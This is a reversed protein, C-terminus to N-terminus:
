STLRQNGGFSPNYSTQQCLDVQRSRNRHSTVFYTQADSEICPRGVTGSDESMAFGYSM